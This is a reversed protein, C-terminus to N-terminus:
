KQFFKLVAQLVENKTNNGLITEFPFGLLVIKYKGEYAIGASMGNEKYRLITLSGDYPGIADPAEVRYIDSRYHTNFSFHAPLKLISHVPTFVGGEKVAHDTVWNFKLDQRGFIIDPYPHEKNKFLDTGLYAGTVFLSKGEDLFSRIARKLKEPFTKFAKGKISDLASRQWGTEKEEGLILDIISYGNININNDMVAEDSCSVFSYGASKIARGHVVPYDFSNGAIIKTEENAYSAGHGPRDDTHWPDTTDFNFQDGTFAYDYKDPVGNDKEYAFGSYEGYDFWAPPAVRDFGNIILVPKTSTDTQCVALIESPFSEGGDNLATVKFSYIKNKEPNKLIYKNTTVLRGNDFGQDDIRTYIKYATAKASIELPDTVDQWTLLINHDDNFRAAFHDVPLPQIVYVQDNQIAIFRLLAKYIARSVYFRFRPDLAFQMDLFNQHSLLELLTAPENPRVAESLQRNWLSRRTWDPDFLQRIDNVVQSQVIDSLDRNAYRSMGNPFSDATDTDTISYIQLTGVTTDNNTIGADTHFALTADIPINIGSNRNKNPGNPAGNLYNVWEARSQYDDRYDSQENLKYVLTDPFGASQLYYRAGEEFRPRESTQGNRLINGTGGGFKVADATVKKGPSHSKNSLIVSGGAPNYGKNFKFKGLCIWTDGGIQQNVLFRTSDGSHYVTYHADDINEPSSEYSIYVAYYGSDPFFPTWHIQASSLTDSLTYRYTGNHFPNFNVPYPPTGLAFGPQPGNEWQRFDSRRNESYTIPNEGNFLSDNDVIIENVQVDRERPMFVNAGANELMPIVYPVIFSFPLLDEVTGFLRARQWMWRDQAQNYYWGHSPWLAINRGYLGASPKYIPKEKRVIPAPRESQKALRSTDWQTIDSRYYNPILEEIPKNLTCLEIKFDRYDDGLFDRLMKYTRKVNDERFPIQSFVESLTISLVKEKEQLNINEIRTSLPIYVPDSTQQVAIIFAEIQKHVDVIAPDMKDYDYEQVKHLVPQCAFMILLLILLLSVPYKAHM